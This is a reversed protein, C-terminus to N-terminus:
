YTMIPFCNLSRFYLIFICSTSLIKEFVLLSIKFIIFISKFNLSGNLTDSALADVKTRWFTQIIRM